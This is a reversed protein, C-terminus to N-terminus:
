FPDRDWESRPGMEDPQSHHTPGCDIGHPMVVYKSPVLFSCLLVVVVVLFALKLIKTDTM